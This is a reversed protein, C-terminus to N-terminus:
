DRYPAYEDMTDREGSLYANEVVERICISVSKM